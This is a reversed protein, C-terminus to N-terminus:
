GGAPVSGSKTTNSKGVPSGVSEGAPNGNPLVTKKPSTDDVSKAAGNKVVYFSHAM